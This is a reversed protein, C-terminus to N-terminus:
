YYWECFRTRMITNKAFYRWQDIRSCLAQINTFDSLLWRGYLLYYYYAIKIKAPPTKISIENFHLSRARRADMLNDSFVATSRAYPKVIHTDYFLVATQLPVLMVGVFRPM